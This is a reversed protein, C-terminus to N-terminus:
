FIVYFKLTQFLTAGHILQDFGITTWFGKMARRAKKLKEDDDLDMSKASEAKLYFYTTLKSTLFDTLFHLLTNMVVYGIYHMWGLVPQLFILGLALMVVFYTLVHM